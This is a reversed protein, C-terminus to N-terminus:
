ARPKHQLVVAAVVQRHAGVSGEREGCGDGTTADIRNRNEGLGGARRLGAQHRVPTSDGSGIDRINLDSATCGTMALPHPLAARVQDILRANVPRLPQRSGAISGASSERSARPGVSRSVEPEEAPVRCLGVHALAFAVIQPFEGRRCAFPRPHASRIRELLGSSVSGLARRGGAVDGSGPVRRRTPGIRQSIEPEEASQTKTGGSRPALEVVEPPIGPALPRPHSPGIDGRLGSGSARPLSRASVAGLPYSIWCIARPYPLP